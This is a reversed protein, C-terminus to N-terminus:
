AKLDSYFVPGLSLLRHAGAVVAAHTPGLETLLEGLFPGKVFLVTAEGEGSSFFYEGRAVAGSRTVVRRSVLM